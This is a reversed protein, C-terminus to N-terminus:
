AADAALERLTALSDPLYKAFNLTTGNDLWKEWRAQRTHQAHVPVDVALARSDGGDDM